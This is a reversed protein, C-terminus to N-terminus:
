GGSLGHDQWGGFAGDGAVGDAVAVSEALGCSRWLRWLGPPSLHGMFRLYRLIWLIYM